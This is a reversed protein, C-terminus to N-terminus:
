FSMYRELYLNILKRFLNRKSHSSCSILVIRMQYVGNEIQPPYIRYNLRDGYSIKKSMTIFRGLRSFESLYHTEGGGAYLYYNKIDKILSKIEKKYFSKSRQKTFNPHEEVILVCKGYQEILDPSPLIKQDDQFRQNSEQLVYQKQRFKIM